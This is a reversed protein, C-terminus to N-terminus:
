REAYLEVLMNYCTTATFLFRKWEAEIFVHKPCLNTCNLPLKSKSLRDAYKLSSVLMFM